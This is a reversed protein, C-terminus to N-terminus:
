YRQPGGNCAQETYRTILNELMDDDDAALVLVVDVSGDRYHAKWNNPDSENLDLLTTRAHDAPSAAAFSPNLLNIEDQTVGLNQLGSSTLAVNLWASHLAEYGRRARTEKFLVNFQVVEATTAVHNQALDGLWSKAAHLDDGLRQLVFAQYDKLFGGLINGQVDNQDAFGPMVSVTM